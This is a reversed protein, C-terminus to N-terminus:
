TLGGSNIWNWAAQPLWGQTNTRDIEVILIHTKPIAPFINNYLINIDNLTKVIYTAPLYHWWATIFNQKHLYQMQKLLADPKFNIGTNDFTIIYFKEM